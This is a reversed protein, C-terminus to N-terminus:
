LALHSLRYGNLAFRQLKTNFVLGTLDGNPKDWARDSKAMVSRIRGSVLKPRIKPQIPLLLANM